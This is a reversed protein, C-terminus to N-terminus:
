IEDGLALKRTHREDSACSKVFTFNPSQFKRFLILLQRTDKPVPNMGLSILEVSCTRPRIKWFKDGGSFPVEDSASAV